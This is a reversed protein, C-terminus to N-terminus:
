PKTKEFFIVHQRPLLNATGVWRLDHPKMEDIVQKQTMKHVLKIPVNPDERRYEVFVLRGGPRLARHMAVTMEYPYEFEHYVDVMIILDVSEPPLKPDKETGQIPEVNSISREKMRERIIDLMEPQIDVAYVKGQPGVGEALRFSLYGTGAGIDAVELGPDLKLIEVLKTPEEEQEREARDLWDAGLHGMVHAIERGMYFKGIGNPDHNARIEYREAVKDEALASSVVGCTLVIVCWRELM